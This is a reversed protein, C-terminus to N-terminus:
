HFHARGQRRTFRHQNQARRAYCALKGNLGGPNQAGLPDDRRSPVHLSKRASVNVGYDAEGLWFLRDGFGERFFHHIADVHHDIINPATWGLKREFGQGFSEFGRCGM